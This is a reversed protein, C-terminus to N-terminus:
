AVAAAAITGSFVKGFETVAADLMGKLEDDLIKKEAIGTLVRPAQTELFRYLDEEYRRLEDVPIADLYGKTAAYIIAVQREVGLPQYQSQKLIEVLRRGRNLQAQTVKDLDSGFQAFAALERYQALDLRLTGSVTRMSRVQASGGVRSV